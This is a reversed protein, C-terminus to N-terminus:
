SSVTTLKNKSYRPDIIERKKPVVKNLTSQAVPIWRRIRWSRPGEGDDRSAPLPDLDGNRCVRELLVEDEGGLLLEPAADLGAVRRAQEPDLWRPRADLGDPHEVHTRRVAPGFEGANKTFFLAQM